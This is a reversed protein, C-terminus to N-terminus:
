NSFKIHWQVARFRPENRLPDLLPDVQIAIMRPEVAKDARPILPL